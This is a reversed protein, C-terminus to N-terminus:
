CTKGQISSLALRIGPWRTPCCACSRIPPSRNAQVAEICVDYYRLFRDLQIVEDNIKLENGIISSLSGREPRMETWNKFYESKVFELCSDHDYLAPHLLGFIQPVCHVAEATSNFGMNRLAKRCVSATRNRKPLYWFVKPVIDLIAMYFSTNKNSDPLSRIWSEEKQSIVKACFEPTLIDEPVFRFAQPDTCVANFCMEETLYEQPVFQLATGEISVAEFCLTYTINEPKLEKLYQGGSERIAMIREEETM